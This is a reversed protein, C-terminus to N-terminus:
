RAKAITARGEFHGCAGQWRIYAAPGTWARYTFWAKFRRLPVTWRAIPPWPNADHKQLVHIWSKAVARDLRALYDRQVRAAPILHTLVLDPFYAVQWGARLVTFVIDNDGGSTLENARRDTLTSPQDLWVRVAERRLAMGAGVPACHPYRRRGNAPDRSDAAFLPASGLDRCALLGDFEACWWPAPPQEFEPLSKGGIGGLQRHADFHAVVRALYDPALVNDDDVFLCFESDPHAANLGCRRAFTLGSSPEHLLRLHTPAPGPLTDVSLLPSPANDIVLTEWQAPPFTQACLGALTRRLRGADPHYTCLIVSLRMTPPPIM